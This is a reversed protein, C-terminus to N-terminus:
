DGAKTEVPTATDGPPAVPAEGAATTVPAAPKKLLVERLQNKMLFQDVIRLPEFM